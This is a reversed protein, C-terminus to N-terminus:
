APLPSPAPADVRSFFALLTSNFADAETVSHAHGGHAMLNLTANPLGDTLRLSCTWPVLVDDKAAAVLTPAAIGALRADIDFARLAAIRARMNAEGPFHAFAHDVEDAVRKAHAACWAAPYLFIPQAEVYARPGVAGLLALRADFCRASHPNPKSWANILVLSAIRSPADLALQLGVLGGLAHGAFHCRSTNTADLIERVDNAMDAIAYAEPLAAPSRGTGRQDYAIVRHGAAILAGLQPQWFGASGGLGSSLLVTAAADSPGHVEYHLATM